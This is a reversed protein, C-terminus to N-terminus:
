GRPRVRGRRRNGDRATSESVARERSGDNGFRPWDDNTSFPWRRRRRRSEIPENTQKATPTQKKKKIKKKTEIPRCRSKLRSEVVGMQNVLSYFSHFFQKKSKKEKSTEGRPTKTKVQQSGLVSKTDLM